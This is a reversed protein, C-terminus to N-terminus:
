EWGWAELNMGFHLPVNMEHFRLLQGYIQEMAEHGILVGLKMPEKCVLDGYRRIGCKHMIKLLEEARGNSLPELEIDSSLVARVIGPDVTTASM